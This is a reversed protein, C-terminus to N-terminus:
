FIYDLIIYMKADIKCRHQHIKAVLNPVLHRWSAGLCGLKASLVAWSGGLLGGLRSLFPGLVAWSTDLFWDLRAKSGCSAWSGGLLRRSGRCVEIKFLKASTKSTNKCSKQLIKSLKEFSMSSACERLKRGGGQKGDKQSGTLPVPHESKESM